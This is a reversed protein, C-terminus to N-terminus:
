PKSPASPKSGVEPLVRSLQDLPDNMSGASAVIRACPDATAELKRWLDGALISLGATAYAAAARIV